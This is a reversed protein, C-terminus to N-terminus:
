GIEKSRKAITMSNTKIIIGVMLLLLLGQILEVIESSVNCLVLGSQLISYLLAGIVIKYIYSKSGGSVPVGGVFLALMVQLEFSSGMNPDVGGIKAITMVAVLGAFTGSLIFAMIKIWKTPLGVYESVVENEGLSKSCFGTKSFEFLFIAIVSAIIFLLLKISWKNLNLISPDVFIVDGKSLVVVLARLIILQALTVMMSSVKFKSVLLGNILGIVAGIIISAPILSWNGLSAAIIAGLTASFALGSGVSMDISGQAIVFIMGYGGICLPIMTDIITKMNHVSFFSTGIIISFIIFLILLFLFPLVLELNVKRKTKM